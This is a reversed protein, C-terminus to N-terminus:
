EKYDGLVEKMYIADLSWLAADNTSLGNWEDVPASVEPPRITSISFQPAEAHEIRNWLDHWAERALQPNRTQWAGYAMLRRVPFHSRTIERAKTKYNLAYDLWTRSFLPQDMVPLLENMVEFGGMITALHNTTQREPDGEYSIRGTAPDYGLAKNGTFFGYRLGAISELGAAIKDRYRINGTREWETMWNGAYALWDPGIRLRAPATCPFLERPEALRMPDLHYLLTDADTQAHMLDGTREDGGTLYYYFRMFASQSIRAEKAGCGWHTVNHRSGLPAFPGLHYTDVESNHRTMAEAMRWVDQRGTRLFSYWLWMPTALETNDWAYGGVDYRWGHREPDYAHMLDGYNWFGYWKHQEVADRYYDIYQTLRAEVADQMGKGDPLSWVGFARKEHLYRPQPLLRSAAELRAAERAIAQRGPYAVHPKLWLTSTRGIGYPSSMGPQVDEYAAELGHAITDYHCLNMPEAEPSWLWVTLLAERSRAQEVELTSPYAQWFDELGVSLGGSVGGVFVYGPARVGTLTGIWPSQSTAKKRVSFSNDTQQSLRFGDWSAWRDLLQRDREDFDAYAPMREGGMQREQLTRDTLTRRGDLPQVPEAWVGNKGTAFAVHRNYLEDTMPVQLRIGLSRIADQRADGDYVFSHVLKIQDSGDYFYLRLTFPLWDRRASHHVGDIRVVASVDGQREVTLRRVLSTYTQDATAVLRAGGGAKVKNIYLSDMFCAGSKPLWATLRRTSVMLQSDTERITLRNKKTKKPLKLVKLSDKGGPVVAALGAWKVSGDPWRANVWADTEIGDSLSLQTADTLEGQSFPVGLSVPVSDTPCTGVWHLPIGGALSEEPLRGVAFNTLCVRSLTTRFGFWGSPIPEPDLYDVLCEGDVFMRTRGQRTEIRVHYWHGPRLLHASDTYEKLVAPRLDANDVAADNGDYRRFRTTTNYNGGYGLYYMALSYCRVFIGQRWAMRQWVDGVERSSRGKSGKRSVAQPDNAMWFVNMDSLRDGAQGTMVQVDYDVAMGDAVPQRRWLTLGKSATLECTDGHFTVRYDPSESEVRWYRGFDRNNLGSQAEAPLTLLWASLLIILASKNM